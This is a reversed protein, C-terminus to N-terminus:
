LCSNEAEPLVQTAKRVGVNSFHAVGFLRANRLKAWSTDEHEQLECVSREPVAM